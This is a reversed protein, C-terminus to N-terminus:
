TRRRIHAHVYTQVTDLFDNLTPLRTQRVLHDPRTSIDFHLDALLQIFLFWSVVWVLPPPHQLSTSRWPRAQLSASLEPHKPPDCRARTGWRRRPKTKKSRERRKRFPFDTVRLSFARLPPIDHPLPQYDGKWSALPTTIKTVRPALFPCLLPNVRRPTKRNRPLDFAAFREPVTPRDPKCENRWSLRRIELLISEVKRTQINDEGLNVWNSKDRRIGWYFYFRVTFAQKWAGLVCSAVYFPIFALTCIEQYLILFSPFENLKWNLIM